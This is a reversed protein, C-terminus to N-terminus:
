KEETIMLDAIQKSIETRVFTNRQTVFNILGETSNQFAEQDFMPEAGFFARDGSAKTVHPAIQNHYKRILASMNETTFFYRTLLDLYATYALHYKRIAMTKDYMPAGSEMM